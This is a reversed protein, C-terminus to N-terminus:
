DIYKQKIKEVLIREAEEPIIGNEIINLRFEKRIMAIIEEATKKEPPTEKTKDTKSRDFVDLKAKLLTNEIAIGASTAIASLFEEDDKTFGGKKNLLQFVGIVDGTMNLMPVCLLNYTKFGTIKDVERNFKPHTYADDLIIGQGTEAVLGAIGIGNKLRIETLEIGTGIQSWLEKKKKDLVFVSARECEFTKVSLRIILDLLEDINTKSNITRSIEFLVSLKKLEYSIEPVSPPKIEEEKTGKKHQSRALIATAEDLLIEFTFPKYIFGAIKDKFLIDKSEYFYGSTVIIPTGREFKHINEVFEIESMAPYMIEIIILSFKQLMLVNLSNIDKPAYHLIYNGAKAFSEYIGKTERNQSFVLIKEPDKM